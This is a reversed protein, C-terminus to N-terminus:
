PSQVVTLFNSVAWGQRSEDYPGVLFWWTYDDKESPGDKVLFVEAEAGLLRVQSDLGPDTRLRLGDGSTGSIQVYAGVGITGPPPSPPVTPTLSEDSAAGPTPSLQTATPAPIINLVATAPGPPAPTPRTYWLFGLTAGLLILATLFAGGLIWPNILYHILGKM